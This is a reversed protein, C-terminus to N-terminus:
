DLQFAIFKIAAKSSQSAKEFASVVECAYMAKNDARHINESANVVRGGWQEVSERTYTYLLDSDTKLCVMGGPVLLSAYADLFSPASLRSKISRNKLHPDPFTLWIQHITHELFFEKIREVRVRLFHVNDLGYDIAKEAGVCMRHSKSDIGICLKRPSKTAFALTHEGKGCGLELIIGLGEYRRDYWPYSDPPYLEGFKSFTVNPLQKVREYKHLKTKAM